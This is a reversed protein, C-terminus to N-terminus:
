YYRSGLSNEKCNVSKLWLKIITRMFRRWVQGTEKVLFEEWEDRPTSYANIMFKDEADYAVGRVEM